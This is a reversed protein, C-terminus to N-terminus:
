ETKGGNTREDAPFHWQSKFVKGRRILLLKSMAPCNCGNGFNSGSPVSHFIEGHGERTLRSLTVLRALRKPTSNSYILKGERTFPEYDLLQELALNSESTRKM